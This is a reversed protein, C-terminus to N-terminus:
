TPAHAPIDAQRPTRYALVWVVLAIVAAVAVIRVAWLIDYQDSAWGMAYIAPLTVLRGAFTKVALVTTRVGSPTAEHVLNEIQVALAGAAFAQGLFLLVALWHDLFAMAVLPAVCAMMLGHRRSAGNFRHAHWSGLAWMLYFAAWLVALASPGDVYRLFYLQGFGEKFLDGVRLLYVVAFMATLLANGLVARRAEGIQSHLAKLASLQRPEHSLPERIALVILLMLAAPALTLFFVGRYGLAESLVGGLVSGLAYGAISLGGVRGGLKPYDGARGADKLTDYLLSDAPETMTVIHVGYFAVGVLYLPLSAAAGMLLSCAALSLASVVLVGRRSWRDALVGVPIGLAVNTVQLVLVTVAVDSVSASIVDRMFLKEIGYWFVLGSLLSSLSLKAVNGYVADADRRHVGEIM